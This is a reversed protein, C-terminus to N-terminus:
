AAVSFGKSGGPRAKAAMRRTREGWRDPKMVSGLAIVAIILFFFVLAIFLLFGARLETIMPM